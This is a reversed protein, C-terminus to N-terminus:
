NSIVQWALLTDPSNSGIPERVTIVGDGDVRSPVMYNRNDSGAAAVILLTKANSQLLLALYFM